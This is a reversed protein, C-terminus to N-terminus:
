HIWCCWLQSWPTFLLCFTLNVHLACVMHSFVACLIVCLVSNCFVRVSSLSYFVIASLQLTYIYIHIYIINIFACPYLSIFSYSVVFFWCCKFVTSWEVFYTCSMKSVYLKLEETKEWCKKQAPWEQKNRQKLLRRCAWYNLLLLANNVSIFFSFDPIRLTLDCYVIWTMMLYFCGYDSERERLM